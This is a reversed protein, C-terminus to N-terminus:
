HKLAGACLNYSLRVERQCCADLTPDIGDYKVEDMCIPGGLGELTGGRAFDMEFQVIEAKEMVKYVCPSFYPQWTLNKLFHWVTCPTGFTRSSQELFM